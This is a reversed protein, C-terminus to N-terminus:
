AYVWIVSPGSPWEMVVTEEAIVKSGKKVTVTYEGNLSIAFAKFATGGIKWVQAEEYYDPGSVYIKFVVGSSSILVNIFKDEVEWGWGDHAIPGTSAEYVNGRETTVRVDFSSGNHPNVEFSGLEEGSMSQVVGDYAHITDNIWIRVIKVVMECRNDMMVTLNDPAADGTPYVYVVVNERAREEDRRQAELKNQEFIIDAQHMVLQMPIVATFLIGIFIITGLITSVGRRDKYTYITDGGVILKYESTPNRDSDFLSIIFYIYTDFYYIPYGDIM